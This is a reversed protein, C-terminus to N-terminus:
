LPSLFLWLFMESHGLIAKRRRFISCHVSFISRGRQLGKLGRPCGQLSCGRGQHCPTRWCREGPSSCENQWCYSATRYWFKNRAEASDSWGQTKLWFPKKPPFEVNPLSLIFCKYFFDVQWLLLCSYSSLPPFYKRPWQTKDTAM